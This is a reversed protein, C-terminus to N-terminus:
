ATNNYLLVDIDNNDDINLSTAVFSRMGRCSIKTSNSLQKIDDGNIYYINQMYDKLNFRVSKSDRNFFICDIKHINLFMRDVNIHEEDTYNATKIKEKFDKLNGKSMEDLHDLYQNSM